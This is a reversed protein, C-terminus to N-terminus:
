KKPPSAADIMALWADETVAAFGSKGGMHPEAANVMEDTPERMARIAARASAIWYDFLESDRTEKEFTWGTLSRNELAFLAKAVRTEIETFERSM